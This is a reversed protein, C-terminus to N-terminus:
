RANGKKYCKNKAEENATKKIAYIFVQCLLIHIIGNRLAM